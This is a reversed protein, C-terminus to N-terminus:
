CAFYRRIWKGNKLYTNMDNTMDYHLPLIKKELNAESDAKANEMESSGRYSLQRSVIQQNKEGKKSDIM